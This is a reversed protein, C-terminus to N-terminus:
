VKPSEIKKSDESKSKEEKLMEDLLDLQGKMMLIENKLQIEASEIKKYQEGKQQILTTLLKKKEEFNFM